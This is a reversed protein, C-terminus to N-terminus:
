NRSLQAQAWARRRWQRRHVRISKSIVARDIATNSLSLARLVQGDNVNMVAGNLAVVSRRTDMHAPLQVYAHPMGCSCAEAM